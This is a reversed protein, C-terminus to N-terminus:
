KSPQHCTNIELGALLLLLVFFSKSPKKPSYKVLKKKKPPIPVEKVDQTQDKNAEEAVQQLGEKAEKTKM